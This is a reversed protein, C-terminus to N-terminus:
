LTVIKVAFRLWVPLRSVGFNSQLGSRQDHFLEQRFINMYLQTLGNVLM